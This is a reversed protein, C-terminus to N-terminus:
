NEEIVNSFKDRRSEERAPGANNIICNLDPSKSLVSYAAAQISASNSIDLLVPSMGPNAACADNLVAARRGGIIVRNGLKHLAEALGRGIGGGGGTVLITNSHNRMARNSQVVPGTM